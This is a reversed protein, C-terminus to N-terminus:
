KSRVRNSLVVAKANWIKAGPLRAQAIQNTPKKVLQAANKFLQM